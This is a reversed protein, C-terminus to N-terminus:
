VLTSRPRTLPLDSKVPILALLCGGNCAAGVESSNNVSGWICAKSPRPHGVLSPILSTALLSALTCYSRERSKVTSTIDPNGSNKGQSGLFSPNYRLSGYASIFGKERHQKEASCKRVAVSICSLIPAWLSM